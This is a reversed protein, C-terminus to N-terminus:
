ATNVSAISPWVNKHIVRLSFHIFVVTVWKQALVQKLPNQAIAQFFFWFKGKLILLKNSSDARVEQGFTLARSVTCLQWALTLLENATEDDCRHWHFHCALEDNFLAM